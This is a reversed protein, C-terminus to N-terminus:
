KNGIVCAWGDLDIRRAAHLLRQFVRAEGAQFGTLILVGGSKTIRVLEDMMALIVTGSINAVTLDASGATIAEASGAVILPAVHNNSFDQKATALATADTDLAIARSAGLLMAAITLIGSGAGVDAVSAGIQVYDELAEMALRTCPHEGTGCASGPTHILRLRGAPTNTSSWPPALYLKKGVERGPWSRKIHDIWDIEPEQCWEPGYVSLRALLEDPKAGGFGAILLVSGDAQYIERIGTTGAEWLEGVLRDIDGESCM